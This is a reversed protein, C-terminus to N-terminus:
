FGRQVYIYGVTRTNEGLRDAEEGNYEVHNEGSIGDTM